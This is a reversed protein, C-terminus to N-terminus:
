RRLRPPHPQQANHSRADIALRYDLILRGASTEFDQRDLDTRMRDFEEILVSAVVVGEATEAVSAAMQPTKVGFGVMVPLGSVLHCRAVAESIAEMSASPGGTPGVVPICYLFGGVGAHPSTFDETAVTPAALPILFLGEPVFADLLPKAERLPLDAAILGDIGAAAARAAFAEYGMTVIPNAYGMLVIPTVDDDARFAACLELTRSLNGGADLARRNATQITAGDLIPDSFPHGIELLDIGNRALLRMRALSEDFSPDCALTFTAFARRGESELRRFMQDIRNEAGAM